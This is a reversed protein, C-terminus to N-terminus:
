EYLNWLNPLSVSVLLFSWQVRANQRWVYIVKSSGNQLPSLHSLLNDIAEKLTPSVRLM